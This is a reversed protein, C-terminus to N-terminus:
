CRFLLLFLFFPTSFLFSNHLVSTILLCLSPLILPLRKTYAICGRSEERGGRNGEGTEKRGEKEAGEGEEERVQMTIIAPDRGEREQKRTRGYVVDMRLELEGGGKKYKKSQDNAQM